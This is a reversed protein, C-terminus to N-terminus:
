RTDTSTARDHCSESIAGEGQAEGPRLPCRGRDVQPVIGALCRLAIVTLRSNQSAASSLVTPEQKADSIRADYLTSQPLTILLTEATLSGM